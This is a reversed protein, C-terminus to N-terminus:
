RLLVLTTDYNAKEEDQSQPRLEAHGQHAYSVTATFKDARELRFHQLDHRCAKTPYSVLLLRAANTRPHCKASSIIARHTHQCRHAEQQPAAIHILNHGLSIQRHVVGSDAYPAITHIHWQSAVVSHSGSGRVYFHDCKAVHM